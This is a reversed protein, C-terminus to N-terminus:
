KKSIGVKNKIGQFGISGETSTGFMISNGAEFEICLSLKLAQAEDTRPNMILQYIINRLKQNEEKLKQYSSIREM